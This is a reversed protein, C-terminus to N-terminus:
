PKGTNFGIKERPRQVEPSSVKVSLAAMAQYIDDIEGRMDESLDNLAELDDEGDCEPLELKARTEALEAEMHRTSM